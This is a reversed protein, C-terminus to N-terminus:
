LLYRMKQLNYNVRALFQLSPPFQVWTFWSGKRCRILTLPYKEMQIDIEGEM